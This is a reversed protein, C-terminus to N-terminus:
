KEKIEVYHSLKTLDISTDNTVLYRVTLSNLWNAWARFNKGETNINSLDIVKGNDMFFQVRM